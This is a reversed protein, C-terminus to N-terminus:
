YNLLNKLQNPNAVAWIGFQLSDKTFVAKYFAEAVDTVYLFDRKQNGDGVITLPKSELIQKLFESFLAMLGQQGLGLEMPMLSEISNIKLGYVKGWHLALQEGMYKSLAYPYLTSIPHDEKTPTKALGYCSSSAAYVFKKIKNM